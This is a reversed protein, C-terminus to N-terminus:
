RLTDHLPKLFQQIKQNDSIFLDNEKSNYSFQEKLSKLKKTQKSILDKQIIAYIKNNIQYVNPWDDLSIMQEHLKEGPRIEGKKLELNNNFCQIIQSILFSYSKLVFLEGGQMHRYSFNILDIADDLYLFFRTMDPHTLYFDKLNKLNYFLSGRSNIINGYRVVSFRTFKSFLNSSLFIKDSALKSAGYLNIPNSAKDTSLAIVKPIQKEIALESLNIAGLTNTKICEAPMYEATPVIKMAAAHVILDIPNNLAFRLREKDRIDGLLFRINEKDKYKEKMFYQKMEDRSYIFIKTSKHYHSLYDVFFNGFTGTGGTIFINKNKYM